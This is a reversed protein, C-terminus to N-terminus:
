GHAPKWRLFVLNLTMAAERWEERFKARPKPGLNGAVDEQAAVKIVTIQLGVSGPDSDDSGLILLDKTLWQYIFSQM